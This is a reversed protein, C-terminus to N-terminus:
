RWRGDVWFYGGRRQQWQGPVWVARPRPARAWYGPAWAYAGGRRAWHGDIWFFGAGPPTGRLEQRIPPPPGYTRYSYGGGCGSLAGGAALVISLCLRNM